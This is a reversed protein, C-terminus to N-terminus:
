VERNGNGLLFRHLAFLFTKEASDIRVVVCPDAHSAAGCEWGVASKGGMADGIIQLPVIAAQERLPRVSPDSRKEAELWVIEEECKWLIM